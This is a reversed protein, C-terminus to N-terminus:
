QQLLITRLDTELSRLESESIVADSYSINVKLTNDFRLFLFTLGPPFTQPSYIVMDNVPIDFFTKMDGIGEGTATYLFSALAGEGPRNVLKYYLGGPLKRMMDQLMNYRKPMELKLQEAFQGAIHEVTAKVDSLKEQPITYFVSSVNNSIVPGFAGRKRGDYPVPIWLDGTRGKGKILKNVAISCAAILFSNVGFRTGNKRANQEIIKAEEKSFRIVHFHFDGKGEQEASAVSAIKRKTSNELFAKVKYMNRVRSLLSPSENEKPFFASIPITNDPSDIFDTLMGSGRGDLLIHNWSFILITKKDPSHVLDAEIFREANLPIDRHYISEPIESARPSEHERIEITKGADKYSWYPLSFFSGGALRINCLWHILAIDNLKKQLTEKSLYGELFFAMRVVNGGSRHFKAHTDLVVHFYDAGSLRIKGPLESKLFSM